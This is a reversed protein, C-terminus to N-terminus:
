TLPLRAAVTFGDAQTPGLTLSGGCSAVREAIGALGYGSGAPAAVAGSVECTVGLGAASWTSWSELAPCPPSPLLCPGNQIRTTPSGSCGSSVASGVAWAAGFIFYQVIDDYPQPHGPLTQTWTIIGVTTVIAGWRFLRCSRDAITAVARQIVRSIGSPQAPSIVSNRRSHESSRSCRSTMAAPASSGAWRPTATFVTVPRTVAM